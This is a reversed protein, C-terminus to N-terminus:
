SAESIELKALDDQLSGYVIMWQMEAGAAM